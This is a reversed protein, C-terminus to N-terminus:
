PFLSAPVDEHRRGAPLLLHRPGLRRRGARVLARRAGIRRGARCSDASRPVVVAGRRSSRLRLPVADRRRAEAARRRLGRHGGARLGGRASVLAGGERRFRTLDGAVDLADPLRIWLWEPEGAADYTYFTGFLTGSARKLDVGHGAHYRDYWQGSAPAAALAPGWALLGCVVLIRIMATDIFDHHCGVTDWSGRGGRARWRPVSRPPGRRSPAARAAPCAARARRCRGRRM